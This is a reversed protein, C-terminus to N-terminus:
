KSQALNKMNRYNQTVLITLVLNFASGDFLQKLSRPLKVHMISVSAVCHGCQQIACQTVLYSFLAGTFAKQFRPELTGVLTEEQLSTRTPRQTVIAGM